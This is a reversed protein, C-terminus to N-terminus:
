GTQRLDRRDFAVVALVLLAATMAALVGAHLWNMGNNLPDSSLFYHFPMWKTFGELRDSLPFFSDLLYFTLAAGITAYVAVKVRGTAASLLLSLAGFVLGTAMQM